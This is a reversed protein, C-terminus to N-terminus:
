GSALLAGVEGAARAFERPGLDGLPLLAVSDAGAAALRAVGEAVQQPQGWVECVPESAPIGHERRHEEVRSRGQDGFACPVFVTVEPVRTRGAAAAGAALRGVVTRLRQPPYGGPVVLGDALAGVLELTRPGEGALHLAVPGQPPWSLRVDELRVYEGDVTVTEGALLLRLAETYERLLTLPSAARAGAQAMWGQVGHGLGPITRGPHLRELTALEMATLAVNRLPVPLVGLGVRVRSTAGLAAAASAIAGERFCDEWLWLEDLGAEDAARAAPLLAEPALGPHFITGLRTM